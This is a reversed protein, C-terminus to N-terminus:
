ARRNAPAGRMAAILSATAVPIGNADHGLARRIEASRADPTSDVRFSLLDTEALFPELGRSTQKAFQLSVEGGRAIRKPMSDGDGGTMATCLRGGGVDPEAYTRRHWHKWFLDDEADAPPMACAFLLAGLPYLGSRFM